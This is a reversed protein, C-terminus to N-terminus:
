LISNLFLWISVIGLALHPSPSPVDVREGLDGSEQIEQYEGGQFSESGTSKPKLPPKKM